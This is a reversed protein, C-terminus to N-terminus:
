CSFGSNAFSKQCEFSILKCIDYDGLKNGFWPGKNNVSSTSATSRAKYKVPESFGATFLWSTSRADQVSSSKLAQRSWPQETYGGIFVSNFCKIVTLTSGSNDCKDHFTKLNFGDRSGRIIIILTVYVHHM